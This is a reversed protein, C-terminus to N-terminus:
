LDLLVLHLLHLQYLLFLVVLDPLASESWDEVGLGEAHEGVVVGVM